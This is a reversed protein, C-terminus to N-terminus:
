SRRRRSSKPLDSVRVSENRNGSLDGKAVTIGEDSIAITATIVVSMETVVSEGISGGTVSLIITPLTRVPSLRRPM